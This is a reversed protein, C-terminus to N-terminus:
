TWNRSNTSVICIDYHVWTISYEWTCVYNGQEDGPQALTTNFYIVNSGLPIDRQRLDLKCICHEFVHKSLTNDCKQRAWDMKLIHHFLIHRFLYKCIICSRVHTATCINLLCAEQKWNCATTISVQHFACIPGPLEHQKCLQLSTNKRSIVAFLYLLAWIHTEIVPSVISLKIPM